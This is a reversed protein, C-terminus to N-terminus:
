VAGRRASARALRLGKASLHRAAAAAPARVKAEAHDQKRMKLGGRSAAAGGHPDPLTDLKTYTRAAAM